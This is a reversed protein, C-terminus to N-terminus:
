KKEALKPNAGITKLIGTLATKWVLNFFGTQPNRQFAAPSNRPLENKTPNDDKLVFTNAFFSTVRKKDLGPEDNEKEYLSVKFNNYLMLVDGSAQREDGHMNINFQKITGNEIKLLGLPEAIDNMINGEFGGSTLSCSFKGTKYNLLDFAFRAKLPVNKLRATGTVVTQKKKKMQLPINTIDSIDLNVHDFHISGTQNSLPNYEQYTFNLNRTHTSAVYIKVPLKMILQQLFNGMKSKPRPLSRDLYIKLIADPMSVGDAVFRDEHMFAWWDINRITIKPVSFTYQEKQHTLKKQFQQKNYPSAVSLNHITMTQQPAEIMLKGIKLSHLDDKTKMAYKKLSLSAQRAFLFRDKAHETSSDILIDTLQIEVDNWQNKKNKNAQNHSIFTGKQIVFKGIAIRKMDKMIRDFLTLSDVANHTNYPRRTHYVEITPRGTIQIEKFDITKQGLVDDLNIGNIKLTDFSAKFVDNPAQKSSDLAALVKNDHILHVNNLIVRSQLLNVEMSNISINYLGKSGQKVLQQIKAIFLPRLDITSDPNGPSVFSSDGSNKRSNRIDAQLYFRVSFYVVILLGAM